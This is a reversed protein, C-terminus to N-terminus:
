GAELHKIAAQHRLGRKEIIRHYLSDLLMLIPLERDLKLSNNRTEVINSTNHGYRQGPFFAECWLAPDIAQLYNAADEKKECLVQMALKHAAASRARAIAWFEPALGRGFKTTFNEKIHHCCWAPTIRSGLIAEAEILGKDRDSIPNHTRSFDRSYCSTPTSFVVGM